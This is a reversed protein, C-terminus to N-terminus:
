ALGSILVREEEEEWLDDALPASAWPEASVPSKPELLESGDTRLIRITAAVGFTVVVSLVFWGGVGVIAWSWASMTDRREIRAGNVRRRLRAALAEIM